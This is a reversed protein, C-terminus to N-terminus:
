SGYERWYLTVFLNFTHNKISAIYKHGESTWQPFCLTHTFMVHHPNCVCLWVFISTLLTSVCLQWCEPNMNSPVNHQDETMVELSESKVKRKRELLKLQLASLFLWSTLDLHEADSRCCWLSSVPSPITIWHWYTGDSVCQNKFRLSKYM